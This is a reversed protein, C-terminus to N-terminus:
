RPVWEVWVDLGDESKETIEFWGLSRPCVKENYISSGPGFRYGIKWWGQRTDQDPYTAIDGNIYHVTVVSYGFMIGGM